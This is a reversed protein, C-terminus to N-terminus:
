RRLTRTSLTRAHSNSRGATAGHEDGGPVAIEPDAADAGDRRRVMIRVGGPVAIEPDGADAADRRRM